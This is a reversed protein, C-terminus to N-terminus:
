WTLNMIQISFSVEFIKEVEKHKSQLTSGQHVFLSIPFLFNHSIRGKLKRVKVICMLSYFTWKPRYSILIISWLRKLFLSVCKRTCDSMMIEGGTIWFGRYILQSIVNQLERQKWEHGGLFLASFECRNWHNKQLTWYQVTYSYPVKTIYEFKMCVTNVFSQEPRGCLKDSFQGVYCCSIYAFHIGAISIM